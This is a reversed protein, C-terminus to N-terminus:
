SLMVAPSDPGFALQQPQALRQLLRGTPNALRCAVCPYSSLTGYSLIALYEWRTVLMIARTPTRVAGPSRSVSKAMVMRRPLSKCLWLCRELDAMARDQQLEVYQNRRSRHASKFNSNSSTNWAFWVESNSRRTAGTIANGPWGFSFNDTGDPANLKITGNPWSDIDIDRSSYQNSGEAMSFVRIQTNKPSGAGSSRTALIRSTVWLSDSGDTKTGDSPSTYGMNITQSDRIENLPIRVM